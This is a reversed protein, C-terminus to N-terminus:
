SLLARLDSALAASTSGSDLYVRERGKGDIVYVGQEHAGIDQGPTAEIGYAKWVPTLQASSGLLYHLDGSLHHSAVFATASQASDGTPDVSVAIWEVRSAKAGLASVAAFLKDATAGCNGVCRTDLFTLAVPHGRLRQLSVTAGNQDALTFDPAATAGLDAGVLAAARTDTLKSHIVIVASVIVVLAVVSIRSITRLKM